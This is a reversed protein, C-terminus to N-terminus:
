FIGSEAAYDAATAAVSIYTLLRYPARKGFQSIDHRMKGTAVAREAFPWAAVAGILSVALFFVEFRMKILNRNIIPFSFHFKIKSPSTFPITTSPKSSQYHLISSSKSPM